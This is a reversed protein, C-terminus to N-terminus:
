TAAVAHSVKLLIIAKALNPYGKLADQLANQQVDALMDQLLAGSISAGM